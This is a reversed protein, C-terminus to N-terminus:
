TPLNIGDILIQALDNEAVPNGIMFGQGYPCEKQRLLRLDNHGEIDMALIDKGTRRGLQVINALLARYKESEGAHTLLVKGIVLTNYPPSVAADLPLAGTALGSAAMRIGLDKLRAIADKIDPSWPHQKNYPIYFELFEPALTSDDLAQKVIDTLAPEGIWDPPLTAMIILRKGYLAHWQRAAKSAKVLLASMFPAVLGKDGIRSLLADGSLRGYPTTEYVADVHFGRLYGDKLYVQPQYYLAVTQTEIPADATPAAEEAEEVTKPMPPTRVPEQHPAPAHVNAAAALAKDLLTRPDGAMDSFVVSSRIIPAVYQGEIILHQGLKGALEKVAATSEERTCELPSALAFSDDAVKGVAWAEPLTIKKALQHMLKDRVAFGKELRLMDLNEVILIACGVPTGAHALPLRAGLEAIFGDLTLFGTAPDRDPVAEGTQKRSQEVLSFSVILAEIGGHKEEIVPTIKGSYLERGLLIDQGLDYAQVRHHIRSIATEWLRTLIEYRMDAARAILDLINAPGDAEDEGTLSLVSEAVPNAYRIDGEPSVMLILEPASEIAGEILPKFAQWSKRRSRYSLSQIAILLLLLGIVALFGIKLTDISLGAGSFLAIFKQWSLVFQDWIKCFVCDSLFVGHLQPLSELM